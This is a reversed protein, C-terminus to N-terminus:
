KKRRSKRIQKEVQANEYDVKSIHYSYLNLFQIVNLKYVDFINTNAVKSVADVAIMWRYTGVYGKDGGDEEAAREDDEKGGETGEDDGDENSVNFLVPFAKHIEGVKELLIRSISLATEVDMFDLIDNMVQTTDYNDSYTLGEPILITSIFYEYELKAKIYEQIDIYQGATCRTVDKQLKYREGNLVITDPLPRKDNPNRYVFSGKEVLGKFTDIPLNLLEDESMDTLLSIVKVVFVDDAENSYEEVIKNLEKYKRLSMKNWSDIIDIKM